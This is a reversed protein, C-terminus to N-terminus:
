KINKKYVKLAEKLIELSKKLDEIKLVYAIRVENKGLGPTAYFGAAPALMVTENDLRFDTLLWRCFEEANKLPLHAVAYFAGEPKPVFVGPIKRLNDYLINRRKEYEKYVQKFYGKSVKTLQAAMKQSILGASLRGQAIRNVGEMLKRNFSILMGLRAGCLSYRKSVCDILIGQQPVKKIYTLLSVQKKGDYTFERYAEDAILFLRYKKVLEILMEIEEKRYVTGTPNNPNCYIIARTKKTIKKEITKKDPLHFGNQASTLVPTITIENIAAFSNYNAYFPDFTIIEDGANAIAFMTMAIGESSGNTILINAKDVFDHGLRHYYTKVAELFEPEGQSQTYSIPNQQWNRLVELMVEPTKIDPDGINLHYIKVGQKKAQQAYPVLKRIPSAPVQLLRKSVKM